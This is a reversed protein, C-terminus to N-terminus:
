YTFNANVVDGGKVTISQSGALERGYWFRVTYAGSPVNKISFSGQDDPVVFYPNELILITANMHAHIDCYVRVIGPQDFRVSKQTGTPYRGLDFEKPQSYSFVNHFLNDRNPFDVTTGALVPLVQPHFMLDKQDLIPHVAPPAFSHAKMVESELYIVAKESLKYSVPTASTHEPGTLAPRHTSYRDIIPPKQTDVDVRAITIKGRIEGLKKADQALAHQGCALAGGLFLLGLLTRKRTHRPSDM